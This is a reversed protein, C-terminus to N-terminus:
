ALLQLNSDKGPRKPGFGFRLQILGETSPQGKEAWPGEEPYGVWALTLGIQVNADPM